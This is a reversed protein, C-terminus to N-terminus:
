TERYVLLGSQRGAGMSTRRRAGSVVVYQSQRIFPRLAFSLM